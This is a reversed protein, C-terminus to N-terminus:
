QFSVKGIKIIGEGAFLLAGEPVRDDFRDRDVVALYYGDFEESKKIDFLRVLQISRHSMENLVVICVVFRVCEFPTHTTKKVSFPASWAAIHCANYVRHDRREM